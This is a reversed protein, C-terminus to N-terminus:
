PVSATVWLPMCADIDDDRERACVSFRRRRRKGRRRKRRKRGERRGGEGRKGAHSELSPTADSYVRICWQLKGTADSYVSNAGASCGVAMAL